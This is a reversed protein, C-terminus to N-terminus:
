DVGTWLWCVVVRASANLSEALWCCPGSLLHVVPSLQHDAIMSQSAPLSHYSCCPVRLPHASLSGQLSCVASPQQAATGHVDYVILDSWRQGSFDLSQNALIHGNDLGM